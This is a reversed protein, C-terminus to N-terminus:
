PRQRPMETAVFGLITQPYRDTVLLFGRDDLRAIGEWNRAADDPLELLLPPVDVRAIAGPDGAQAGIRFAVLREVQAFQAHTAGAGYREALPDHEATLHTDGPFFYNVAWFVGDADIATADTVRYEISPFPVQTVTTLAHDVAYAVPQPNFAAGNAEYIAVLWDQTAILAEYSQNPFSAQADLTITHELDLTIASLDPAVTGRVLVAFTSLPTAFMEATLYVTDGVFVAAEFGDFGRLTRRIDPAYIPVPRPELPAPADADLYTLIDAKDLAFFMGAVDGSAYENPNELLLLLSDGYWALGSIEANPQAAPGDLAIVTIPTEPHPEQATVGPARLPTAFMLTIGLTLLARM